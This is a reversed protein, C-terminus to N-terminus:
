SFGVITPDDYPYGACYRYAEGNYKGNLEYGITDTDPSLQIYGFPASAGPFTHGMKYTGAMPNVYRIPDSDTQATLSLSASGLLLATILSFKNM